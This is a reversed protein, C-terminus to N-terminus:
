SNDDDVKYGIVQFGVPNIDLEDPNLQVSIYRIGIIAIKNYVKKNGQTETLTFRLVYKNTDIKSWSKTTIYTSNKDGYLKSPDNIRIYSLYEWFINESSLVRIINKTIIGFDVANYSERAIVYKKIFYKALSEDQSLVKTDMVNVITAAGTNEQISIVFPDFQKLNSITMIAIAAVLLSILSIVLLFFIFNRQILINSYRDDYWNKIKTLSNTEENVVEIESSQKNKKNLFNNFQFM